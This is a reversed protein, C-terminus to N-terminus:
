RGLRRPRKERPYAPALPDMAAARADFCKNAWAVPDGIAGRALRADIRDGQAILERRNERPHRWQEERRAATTEKSLGSSCRRSRILDEHIPAGKRPHGPAVSGRVTIGLLRNTQPRVVGMGPARWSPMTQRTPLPQRHAQGVGTANPDGGPGLISGFLGLPRSATTAVMGRASPADRVGTAVGLAV